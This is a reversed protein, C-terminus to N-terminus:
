FLLRPFLLGLFILIAGIGMFVLTTEGSGTRPLNTPNVSTPNVTTGPPPTNTPETEGTVTYACNVVDTLINSITPPNKKGWVKAVGSSEDYEQFYTFNINATGPAIGTFTVKAITATSAFVSQDQGYDIEIKGLTQDVTKSPSTWNTTTTVPVVDTESTSLLDSSYTLIANAGYTQFNRTNLIIDTTVSGGVAITSTTPSCALQADTALAQGPKLGWFLLVLILATKKM